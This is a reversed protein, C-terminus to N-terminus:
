TGFGLVNFIHSIQGMFYVALLIAMATITAQRSERSPGRKLATFAVYVALIVIWDRWLGTVAQSLIRWLIILFAAGAEYAYYKSREHSSM